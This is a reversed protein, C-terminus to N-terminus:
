YEVRGGYNRWAQQASRGPLDPWTQRYGPRPWIYGRTPDKLFLIHRIRNETMVAHQERARPAVSDGGRCLDYWAHSLEHALTILPDTRFWKRQLGADAPVHETETPNWCLTDTEYDYDSPGQTLCVRMKGPASEIMDIENAISGPDLFRLAQLSWFLHTGDYPGPETTCLWTSIRWGPQDEPAWDRERAFLSAAWHYWNDLSVFGWQAGEQLRDGVFRGLTLRDPLAGPEDLYLFRHTTREELTAHADSIGRRSSVTAPGTADRIKTHSVWRATLAAGAVLMLALVSVVQKRLRVM